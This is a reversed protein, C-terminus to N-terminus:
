EYRLAVIPNMRSARRAPIYCAGMAVLTLLVAVGAFIVPDAASVGFLLSRMLQTMGLAAVVGVAVGIAALRAGEGVVLLLVDRGQAGLAVRIGMERTRQTVSYSILGYLGVMALILALGAFSGILFSPYRRLFVSPSQAIIQDMTLPQILILQPDASRLAARVAGIAGSPDGATRVMYTIFTDVDQFYPLFLAPEEPRDLDADANDGVVGVIERFRQTPSNTFKFRKGIPKEGPLYRKVWAQNVIVRRPGSATDDTDNFFRGAALPIGLTSFYGSSVDRIKSEGEQGTVAPQGEVVFRVTNGGGTLPVVTTTAVGAIGPLVRLRETFDRVFRIADADQPYSQPLLFVSFTLLRRTDFGPNRDLLAALSKVMLGAGVLLVLSSAIEAIVLARRLRTRIGGASARSEDKLTAGVNRVSVELAPALGFVIATFIATAFLFALVVPDAHAHLLFPMSSLLREPIAAILVTTGARALILGLASGAFALILSEALLQSILRRRGAGLAARVAFERRRRTARAMLLNAVNACAILLVCGVAGFLVLLLPRVQGVIRDRLPAMVVRLAGNEKPYAAVLRSNILDMETRAQAPTAGPGVRCIVSMWRLNRRTVFDPGIHLPVWIQANGGPAFEFEPPLVGVITVSSADLQISRGVVQPDGRFRTRWFGYTLIASYPGSAADEGARFDRGLFPKIGLTSFFNTTAQVAFVTEPEGVGRLTFGDGTFGALSEFTKSQTRWDLFDPYSANWSETTLQGTLAQQSRVEGLTILGDPRAYPLPRLLAAHVVSFIATNAGIGLALTLIAVTAFSPSQRLTRFGFRLDQLLNEIFNVRRMDRCEEGYQTFGGIACLAAKRAEDPAMGSALNEEIQQDLHFGLEAELEREVARRRFLSRFRLRTKRFARV